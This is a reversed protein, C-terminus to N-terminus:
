TRPNNQSIFRWFFGPHISTLAQKVTQRPHHVVKLPFTVNDEHPLLRSCAPTHAFSPSSSTPLSPPFVWSSASSSFSAPFMFALGCLGGRSGVLLPNAILTDALACLVYSLSTLASSPM